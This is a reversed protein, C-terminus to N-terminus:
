KFINFLMSVCLVGCVSQAAFFTYVVDVVMVNCLLNVLGLVYKSNRRLTGTYMLRMAHVNTLEIFFHLSHSFITSVLVIEM